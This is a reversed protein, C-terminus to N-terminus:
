AAQLVFGANKGKDVLRGCGHAARQFKGPFKTDANVVVLTLDPRGDRKEEQSLVDLEPWDQVDFKGINSALAGYTITDEKKAVEKLTRRIRDIINSSTSM